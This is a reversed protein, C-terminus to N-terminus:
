GYVKVGDKLIESLLEKNNVVQNINLLDVKKHLSERLEEILGFFQLGTIDSDILLDIDSKEKANGKAYSGFLYCSKVDYKSLINNITKKIYEFTLIGNEEDVYNYKSLKDLLYFYKDNFNDILSEYTQYTRRSINLFLAAEVQSIDLELRKKKLENMTGDGIVNYITQAKIALFIRIKQAKIFISLTIIACMRHKITCFLIVM